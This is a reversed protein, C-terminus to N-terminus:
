YRIEGFALCQLFVEGTIADDNQKIFDGYHKGNKSFLDAGKDAQELTISHTAQEETLGDEEIEYRDQLALTGGHMLVYAWKDERCDGFKDPNSKWEAVLKANTKSKPVFLSAWCSGYTGDSFLTVLAEHTTEKRCAASHELMEKLTM